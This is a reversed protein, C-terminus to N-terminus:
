NSNNISLIERLTESTISTAWQGRVHLICHLKVGKCGHSSLLRIVQSSYAMVRYQGIDSRWINNYLLLPVLVNGSSTESGKSYNLLIHEFCFM